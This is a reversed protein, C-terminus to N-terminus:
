SLPYYAKCVDLDTGWLCINFKEIFVRPECYRCDVQLKLELPGPKLTECEVCDVTLRECRPEGGPIEKLLQGYPNTWDSLWKVSIPGTTKRGSNDFCVKLTWEGKALYELSIHPDEPFVALQAKNPIASEKVIEQTEKQVLYGLLAAVATAALIFAIALQTWQM